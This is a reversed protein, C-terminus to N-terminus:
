IEDRLKVSVVWVCRRVWWSVNVCVTARTLVNLEHVWCVHEGVIACMVAVCDEHMVAVGM